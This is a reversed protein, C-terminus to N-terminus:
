LNVLTNFMQEISEMVRGASQFARQYQVLKLMEEELNVGSVGDRLGELYLLRDSETDRVLSATSADQGVTAVLDALYGKLTVTNGSAVAAEELDALLQAQRGDGPVTTALSSAALASPIGDVDASLNLSGASGGVATFTSFFDRSGNGDLGFGSQHTTNVAQSLDFAFQDLDTKRQTLTDDRIELSAGLSGKRLSGTLDYASADDTRVDFFGTTTNVSAQLTRTTGGQVVTIGEAVVVTYDGNDDQFYRGGMLSALNAVAVDRQDRLEPAERGTVEAGQIRTNLVGVEAILRNADDVAVVVQTNLDRQHAQLDSDAQNVLRTLENGKQLASKRVALDQPNTALERFSGFFADLASAISGDGMLGLTQEVRALENTKHEAYHYNASQKHERQNIFHDFSRKVNSARVGLLGDSHATLVLSQRRYGPTNVNTINNGTVTAGQRQAMIGRSIINTTDFLRTM